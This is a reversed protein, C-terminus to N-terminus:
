RFRYLNWLSVEHQIILCLNDDDEKTYIFTPLCNHWSRRWRINYTCKRSFM